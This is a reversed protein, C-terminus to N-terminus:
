SFKQFFISGMQFCCWVMGATHLGTQLAEDLETECIPTEEPCAYLLFGSLCQVGYIAQTTLAKGLQSVVSDVIAAIPGKTFSFVLVDAFCPPTQDALEAERWLHLKLHEPTTAETHFSRTTRVEGVGGGLMRWVDDGAYRALAAGEVACGLLTM